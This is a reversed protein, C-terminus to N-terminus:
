KREALHEFYLKINRAYDEGYRARMEQVIKTKIEGPLEGWRKAYADRAATVARDVDEPGAEAVEALPEETAPDITGFWRDSRPEVFEGGIFLGYRPKVTVIDRSEPAPAYEWELPAPARDVRQAVDTM